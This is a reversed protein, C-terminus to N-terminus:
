GGAPADSRAVEDLGLASYAASAREQPFGCEDVPAYVATTVGGSVVWVILPDAALEICAGDTRVDNPEAYAALLEEQGSVVRSAVQLLRPSAPEASGDELPQDDGIGPEIPLVENATCVFVQEVALDADLHVAEEQPCVAIVEPATIPMLPLKLAPEAFAPPTPSGGAAPAAQACGVLAMLLVAPAILRSPKM